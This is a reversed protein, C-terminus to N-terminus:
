CCTCSLPRSRLPEWGNTFRSGNSRPDMAILFAIFIVTDVVLKIKTKSQTKTQNEIM